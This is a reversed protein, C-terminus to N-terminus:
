QAYSNVKFTKVFKIMFYEMKYKLLLLFSFLKSDFKEYTTPNIM